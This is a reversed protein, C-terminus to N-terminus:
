SQGNPARKCAREQILRGGTSFHFELEFLLKPAISDFRLEPQAEVRAKPQVGQGRDRDFRLDPLRKPARAAPEARRFCGHASSEAL